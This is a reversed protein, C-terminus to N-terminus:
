GKEWTTKKEGKKHGYWRLRANRLKDGLKAIKATGRVYENRIKDKRTVGLAWRVMKLEAVEMKGMQRETVSAAEMGYLIAPRVVSNYMKGKIKASLKRDCLVGSVKRWSMWGAQIRRRVEEECKRDSSVTSGLYKFYKARKIKEGLLKLEREGDVGRVRLYETKSWSVKLGRRELANRWIELDEELERHNQRSLVIDVAFLMNWPADKRINETLRNIIIAFLFPRLASGQYLGVGIKFEKTLSAASRVTTTVEDYMDQIIKIYCKSTEALRLCEWLEERPVRDYAKELDIFACHVAKQGETWKELLMRLFFIADPTSRKPMFGFQQEAITVEKRIRAEIIMEWLKMTHSMLKIGRYNGCEKIDGKGKYLPVLVSRSWEEPIKERRLLRNFFNVLLEMGKNGVLAIWAEM